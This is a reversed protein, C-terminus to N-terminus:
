QEDMNCNVCARILTMSQLDCLIGTQIKTKLRATLEREPSAHMELKNITIM